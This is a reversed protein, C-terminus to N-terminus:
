LEVRQFWPKDSFRYNENIEYTVVDGPKFETVKYPGNGIPAMNFEHDRAAAGIAGELSHKPLIQGGYGTAFPVMWAANPNAFQVPVIHDDGAEVDEIVQSTASTTTTSG